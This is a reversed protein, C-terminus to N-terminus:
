APLAESTGTGEEVEVVQGYQQQYAYAGVIITALGMLQDNTNPVDLGMYEAVKLLDFLYPSALLYIGAVVAVIAAARQVQFILKSNTVILSAIGIVILVAGIVIDNVTVPGLEASVAKKTAADMVTIGSYNLVFPAAILWIGGVIGFGGLIMQMLSLSSKQEYEKM